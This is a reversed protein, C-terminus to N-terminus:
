PHPLLFGIADVTWHAIMNCVLDRRWLYLLTLILGAGGAIMLHAWGWHSLHAVTFAALTVAGAIWRSGTLEQLREIGYGRFLTEEMVAARTVLAVRFWFPTQYLANFADSNMHLGLAAFLAAFVLGMGITAVIGGGIGCVFTMWTPRLFGISALPRREVVLVYALMLALLGWWLWEHVYLPDVGAVPPLFRTPGILPVVLAIALGVLIVIRRTATM